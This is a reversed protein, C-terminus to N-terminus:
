DKGVTASLRVTGLQVYVSEPVLMEQLQQLQGRYRVLAAEKRPDDLGEIFKIVVECLRIRYEIEAREM